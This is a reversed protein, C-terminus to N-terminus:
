MILNCKLSNSSSWNYPSTSLRKSVNIKNLKKKKQPPPYIPQIINKSMGVASAGAFGQPGTPGQPGTAGTAGTSGVRGPPGTAGNPGNFGPPM